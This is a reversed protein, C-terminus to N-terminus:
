QDAQMFFVKATGYLRQDLIKFGAPLNVDERCEIEAMIITDGNIWGQDKLAIMAKPTLNKGFPPDLLVLTAPEPAKPPRIASAKMLIAQEESVGVKDLNQRIIALPKSNIDFLYAKKAGRSLSEIALAGSGAFADVVVADQLLDDGDYHALMNFISERVRDMTPRTISEPPRQLRMGRFKGGIVRM